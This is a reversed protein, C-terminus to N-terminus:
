LFGISESESELYEFTNIITEMTTYKPFKIRVHIEEELDSVKYSANYKNSLNKIKTLANNDWNNKKYTVLIETGAGTIPQVKSQGNKNELHYLKNTIENLTEIIIKDTDKVNVNSALASKQLVNTVPNESIVKDNLESLFLKISTTFKISETIKNSYFITREQAVDFPLKTGNEALTIMHKGTAHRVGLEYMVNSNLGTLNAIVLDSNLLLEIIQTSINGISSIKHAATITFGYEKLIPELLAYIGDALERDDSREDGIPTILFCIKEKRAISSKDRSDNNNSAM